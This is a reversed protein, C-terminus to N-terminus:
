EQNNIFQDATDSDFDIGQRHAMFEVKNKDMGERVLKSCAKDYSDTLPKEDQREESELPENIPEDDIEGAREIIPDDM